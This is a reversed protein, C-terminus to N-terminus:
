EPDERKLNEYDTIVQSLKDLVHLLIVPLKFKDGPLWKDNERIMRFIYKRHGFEFHVNYFLPLDPHYMRKFLFKQDIIRAEFSEEPSIEV